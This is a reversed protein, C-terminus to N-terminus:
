PNPTEAPTPAASTPVPEQAPSASPASQAEWRALYLPYRWGMIAGYLAHGWRTASEVHLLTVVPAASAWILKFSIYYWGFGFLIGLLALRFRPLRDRFALAFLAGLVSFLALYLAIGAATSFSFGRHIAAGGYFVGAMLNEATWFGRSHFISNVGMWAVYWLAGVM